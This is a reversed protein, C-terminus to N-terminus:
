HNQHDQGYQGLRPGQSGVAQAGWSSGQARGDDDHMQHYASEPTTQGRRIWGFSVWGATDDTTGVTEGATISGSRNYALLVFDPQFGVNYSQIGTTSVPCDYTRLDIDADGGWSLCLAGCLTTGWATRERCQVTFGNADFSNLDAAVFNSGGGDEVVIARQSNNRHVSRLSVAGVGHENEWTFGFQTQPDAGGDNHTIGMAWVANTLEGVTTHGSQGPFSFVLEPEFGVNTVDVTNNVANGNVNHTIAKAQCSSGGILLINLTMFIANNLTVNLRIGDELFEVFDATVIVASASLNEAKLIGDTNFHMGSIVPDSGVDVDATRYFKQSSSTACGIGITGGDRWTLIVAKPTSPVDSLQFDKNGTGSPWTVEQEQRFWISPESGGGGAGAAAEKFMLNDFVATNEASAELRSMVQEELSLADEAKAKRKRGM